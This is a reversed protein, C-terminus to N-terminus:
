APPELCLVHNVFLPHRGAATAIIASNNGAVDGLAGMGLPGVVLGVDGAQRGLALAQGRKGPPAIDAQLATLGPM